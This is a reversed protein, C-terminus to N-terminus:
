HTILAIAVAGVIGLTYGGWVKKQKMKKATYTYGLMYDKNTIPADKPLGLNTIKPTTASCAVGPILGLIGGTLFSTIGTAICGGPHKYHATADASGKLFMSNIESARIKRLSVIEFSGNAYTISRVLGKPILIEKHKPLTDTTIYTVNAITVKLVRCVIKSQNLLFLTDQAFAFTTCCLLTALLFIKRIM